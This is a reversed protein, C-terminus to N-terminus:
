RLEYPWHKGDKPGSYAQEEAPLTALAADKSLGCMVEDPMRRGADLYAQINAPDASWRMSERVFPPASPEYVSVFHGIFRSYYDAFAPSSDLLGEERAAWFHLRMWVRCDVLTFRKGWVSRDRKPSHWAAGHASIRDRATQFQYGHSEFSHYERSLRETSWPTGAGFMEAIWNAFRRGHEVEHSQIFQDLHPDLFAIDYFRNTFNRLAAVGGIERLIAQTKANAVHTSEATANAVQEKSVSLRAFPCAKKKGRQTPTTDSTNKHTKHGAPLELENLREAVVKEADAAEM